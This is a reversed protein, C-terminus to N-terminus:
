YEIQYIEFSSITYNSEGFNLVYNKTIGYADPDGSYTNSLSTCKNYIVFDPSGGFAFFDKGSQMAYKPFIIKYKEKKDFSFIFNEKDFSYEYNNDKWPISSYGGYRHGKKNKVLVVTPFKGGCKNYFTSMLDGDKKSDFLLKIQFPKRDFWNLFLDFEENKLINSKKISQKLM